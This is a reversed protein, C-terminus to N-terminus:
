ESNEVTTKTRMPTNAPTNAVNLIEADGFPALPAINTFFLPAM